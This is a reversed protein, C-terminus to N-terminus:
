TGVLLSPWSLTQRHVNVFYALATFYKSMVLWTNPNQAQWSSLSCSTSTAQTLAIDVKAHIIDLLRAAVLHSGLCAETMLAPYQWIKRGHQTPNAVANQRLTQKQHSKIPLGTTLVHLNWSRWSPPSCWSLLAVRRPRPSSRCGEM